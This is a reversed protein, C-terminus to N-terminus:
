NFLYLLILVYFLSSYYYFHVLAGVLGGGCKDGWQGGVVV